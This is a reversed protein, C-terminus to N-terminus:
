HFSSSLSLSLFVNLLTTVLFAVRILASLSSASVNWWLKEGHENERRWCPADKEEFCLNASRPALCDLPFVFSCLHSSSVSLIILNSNPPPVWQAPVCGLPRHYPARRPPILILIICSSLLPCLAISFMIDAFWVFKFDVFCSLFRLFVFIAIRVFNCSNCACWVCRRVATYVISYPPYRWRHIADCDSLARESIVYGKQTTNVTSSWICKQPWKTWTWSAPVGCKTDNEKLPFFLDAVCCFLAM